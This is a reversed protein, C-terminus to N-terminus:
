KSIEEVKKKADNWAQEPDKGQEAVLTMQDEFAEFAASERPDFPIYELANAAEIFYHNYQEDGFLEHKVNAFDDDFVKKNAPFLALEKYNVRQSEENTLYKVVDAAEKPHATTKIVALYSGGYNSPLFPSKAVLWQKPSVGDEALDNIGWSAEIMGGFLGRQVSNAGEASNGKAGLTYGNKEVMVAYDWAKKLQGDAYTLNGDKDYIHQTMARYRQRLLSVSSQFMPMDAKEKMQKAAEMYAEDSILLESVAQDDTPLGAKQFADTNYFLATPGIDLPLAIQASKDNTFCSDWKWEVYDQALDATGYDLLNVFRDSYPIYDAINSNIATIDPASTSNLSAKLKTDFDGNAPLQKFNLEYDPFAKKANEIATDSIAGNYYNISLSVKNSSPASSSACASLLAGGLLVGGLLTWRSRNKM